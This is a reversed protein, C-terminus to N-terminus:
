VVEPCAPVRYEALTTRGARAPSRLLGPRRRNENSALRIPQTPRPRSPRRPSSTPTNKSRLRASSRNPSRRTLSIKSERHREADLFSIIVSFDRRPSGYSPRCTATRPRSRTSSLQSLIVLPARTARPPLISTHGIMRRARNSSYGGRRALSEQELCTIAIAAVGAVADRIAASASPLVRRLGGGCSLPPSRPTSTVGSSSSGEEVCSAFPGTPPRCM